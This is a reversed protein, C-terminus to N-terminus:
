SGYNNILAMVEGLENFLRGDPVSPTVTRKPELLQTEENWKWGCATFRQITAPDGKEASAPDLGLYSAATAPRIAEYARSIETLTKEQFHVDYKDVLPKLSESWPLERLIKYVQDHRHQWVARLLNLCNQLSPDNQLLTQPMRKTLIRAELSATISNTSDPSLLCAENEYEALIDLLEAATQSTTLVTSLQEKSLPPLDM